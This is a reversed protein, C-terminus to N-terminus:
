RLKERELTQVLQWAADTGGADGGAGAYEALELKELLADATKIADPSIARDALLKIADARTLGGAPVNCRDAIYGTLVARLHPPSSADMALAKKATAFARTRRRYAQDRRFRASRACLLSTAAYALPLVALISWAGAGLDASQDALITNPDTENPFLGESSEVLPTLIGTEPSGGYNAPLHSLAIRQAPTVTLPIPNSRATEFKGTNPNFFSLPIPPIQKVDERLARITMTFRKATDEVSGAPIDASVEFDRTLATIPDLRPPTLRDLPGDGRIILTLTIPDGVPVQTPKALAAISYVGIAGNYGPPRGEQPIPKILLQPLTPKVALKRSRELTLSFVSRGIRLPYNYVFAIDGYDFPGAKTPYVTTELYYVFFNESHGPEVERAQSAYQPRTIDTQSFVGWTTAQADKLNWTNSVDLMGLGPQNYQRIWIQYTLVVPQGVYAVDRKATIEAWVNQTSQDARVTVRLPRTVYARGNDRLTFRGLTLTGAHLPKASFQYTYDTQQTMRGNIVSVRQSRSPLVNLLRIEFDDSEPPTPAGTQSPNSVTVSVTLSEGVVAEDSSIEATLMQARVPAAVALLLFIFFTLHRIVSARPRLREYNTIRIEDNAIRVRM